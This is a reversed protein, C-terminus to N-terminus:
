VTPTYYNRAVGEWGRGGWGQVHGQMHQRDMLCAYYKTMRPGQTRHLGHAVTIVYDTFLVILYDIHMRLM